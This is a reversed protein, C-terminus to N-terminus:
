VDSDLTPFKVKPQMSDLFFSHSKPDTIEQMSSVIETHADKFTAPM